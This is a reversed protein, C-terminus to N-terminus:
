SRGVASSTITRRAMSTSTHRSRTPQTRAVYCCLAAAISCFSIGCGAGCTRVHQTPAGVGDRKCCQTGACLLEGCLMCIAPDEPFARTTWCVKSSLRKYLDTFTHPLPCLPRPLARVVARQQAYVDAIPWSCREGMGM